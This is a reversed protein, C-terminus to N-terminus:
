RCGPKKKVEVIRGLPDVQYKRLREIVNLSIKKEASLKVYGQSTKINKTAEGKKNVKVVGDIAYSIGM